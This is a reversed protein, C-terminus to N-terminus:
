GTFIWTVAEYNAKIKNIREKPWAEDWSLGLDEDVLILTLDTRWPRKEMITTTNCIRRPSSCDHCRGTEACPTPFKKTRAHYPAITNKVRYLAEEVNEVLKNRSVVIIVKRPGYIMAAVRNGVADINVLKGDTTVANTGTIFVDCTFVRRSIENRVELMKPNTTLERTFPNLIRNGREELEELIGIQRITASDGVGVTADIPITNLVIQSAAKANEAYKADFNNAKLNKLAEAMRNDM